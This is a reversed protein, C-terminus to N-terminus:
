ELETVPSSYWRHTRPYPKRGEKCRVQGMRRMGRVRCSHENRTYNRKDGNCGLRLRGKTQSGHEGRGSGRGSDEQHEPQARIRKTSSDPLSVATRWDSHPKRSTSYGEGDGAGVQLHYAEQNFEPFGNLGVSGGFVVPPQFSRRRPPNDLARLISKWHDGGCDWSGWGGRDCLAMDPM